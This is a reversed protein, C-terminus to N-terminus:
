RALHRALFAAAARAARERHNTYVCYHGGRLALTEVHAGARRVAHEILDTPTITDADAYVVLLPTSGLRALCRGPEYAAYRAFSRLTVRNRWTRRRPEPLDAYFRGRDGDRYEGSPASPLQTPDIPERPEHEVHLHDATDGVDAAPVYRARGAALAADERALEERLGGEGRRRRTAESGSITPVQAVAARVLADDAAVCLVHGGSFSTGWVGLREADVGDIREAADLASCYDAIQREPDIDGRLGDSAGLGRHDFVLAAIGADCFAAAVYDLNMEKVAAWGHAMVVAPWPPEASPTVLWAHLRAGPADLWLTRVARGSEPRLPGLDM